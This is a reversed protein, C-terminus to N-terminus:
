CAPSLGNRVRRRGKKEEEREGCRTIAPGAKTNPWDPKFGPGLPQEGPLAWAASLSLLFPSFYNHETM